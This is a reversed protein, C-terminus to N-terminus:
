FPLKVDKKSLLFCERPMEDRVEKQREKADFLSDHEEEDDLIANLESISYKAESLQITKIDLLNQLRKNEGKLRKKEEILEQLTKNAEQLTKNAEQLTKNLGQLDQIRKDKEEILLDQLRKNEEKCDFWRNYFINESEWLKAISSFDNVILGLIDDKNLKGKNVEYSLVYIMQTSFRIPEIGISRTLNDREKDREENGDHSSGDIEVDYKKGGIDVLFDYIYGHQEGNEDKIIEIHQYEYVIGLKDFIEKLKVEILNERDIQEQRKAKLFDELTDYKINTNKDYYTQQHSEKYKGLWEDTLENLEEKTKDKIKKFVLGDSCTLTVTYIKDDSVKLSITEKKALGSMYQAVSAVTIDFYDAIFDRHIKFTDCGYIYRFTQLMIRIDRSEIKTGKTM